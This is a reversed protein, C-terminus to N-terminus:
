PIESPITVIRGGLKKRRFQCSSSTMSSDNGSDDGRAVSTSLALATLQRGGFELIQALTQFGDLGHGFAVSRDPHQARGAFSRGWCCSLPFGPVVPRVPWTIPLGIRPAAAYAGAGLVPM